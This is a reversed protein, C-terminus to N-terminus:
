IGAHSSIMLSIAEGKQCSISLACLETGKVSGKVSAAKKFQEKFLTPLHEVMMMRPDVAASCLSLSFLTSSRM